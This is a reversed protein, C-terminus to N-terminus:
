LTTSKLLFFTDLKHVFTYICYWYIYICVNLDLHFYCLLWLRIYLSQVVEVDEWCISDTQKRNGTSTYAIRSFGGAVQMTCLRGTRKKRNTCSEVQLSPVWLFSQRPSTTDALTSPLNRTCGQTPQNKLRMLQNDNALDVWSIVWRAHDLKDLKKGASTKHFVGHFRHTSELSHRAVDVLYM